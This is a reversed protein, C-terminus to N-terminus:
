CRWTFISPSRFAEDFKMRRALRSSAIGAHMPKHDSAIVFSIQPFDEAVPQEVSRPAINRNMGEIKLLEHQAVSNTAIENIM